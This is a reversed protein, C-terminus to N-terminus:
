RGTRRMAGYDWATTEGVVELWGDAPADAPAATSGRVRLGRLESHYCGADLLLSVAQGAGLGPLGRVWYRGDQYRFAVPAAHLEEGAVFAISARPPRHLIDPLDEPAVARTIQKRAM